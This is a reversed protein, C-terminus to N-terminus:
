PTSKSHAHLQAVLEFDVRLTKRCQSFAEKMTDPGLSLEKGIIELAENENENLHGRELESWTPSLVVAHFTFPYLVTLDRASWHFLVDGLDLILTRQRPSAIKV